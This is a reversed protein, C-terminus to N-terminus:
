RHQMIGTVRPSFLIGQPAYMIDNQAKGSTQRGCMAGFNKDGITKNALSYYFCTGIDISFVQVEYFVNMTKDGSKM